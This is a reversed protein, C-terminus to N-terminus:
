IDFLKNKSIIEIIRNALKGIETDDDQEDDKNPDYKILYNVGYALMANLGLDEGARCDTRIGIIKKGKARAYGCEFCTGSDSDAGDLIAIIIKADDVGRLCIEFVEKFDYNGNEDKAPLVKEQPLFINADMKKSLAQSLKKNWIREAMTFLSGAFYIISEM